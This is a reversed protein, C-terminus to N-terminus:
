EWLSAVSKKLETGIKRRCLVLFEDRSMLEVEAEIVQGITGANEEEGLAQLIRNAKGLAAM